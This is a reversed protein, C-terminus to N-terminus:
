SVQTEALTPSYCLPNLEAKQRETEAPPEGSNLAKISLWYQDREKRSLDIKVEQFKLALDAQASKLKLYPRILKLFSTAKLASLQWRYIVRKALKRPSEAHERGGFNDLLFRMLKYNTNAIGIRVSMEQWGKSNIHRSITIFGECDLSAAAYALDEVKVKGRTLM